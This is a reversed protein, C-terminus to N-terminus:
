CNACKSGRIVVVIVVAHADGDLNVISPDELLLFPALDSSLCVLLMDYRDNIAPDLWMSLFAAVAEYKHLVSCWSM